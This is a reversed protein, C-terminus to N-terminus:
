RGFVLRGRGGAQRSVSVLVGQRCAAGGARAGPRRGHFAHAEQAAQWAIWLVLSRMLWAVEGRGRSGPLVLRKTGGGGGELWERAVKDRRVEEDVEVEEVALGPLDELAGVFTYQELGGPSPVLKGKGKVDPPGGASSPGAPASPLSNAKKVIEVLSVLKTLASDSTKNPKAQPTGSPPLPAAEVPNPLDPGPETTPREASPPPLSHLVLPITSTQLDTLWLTM